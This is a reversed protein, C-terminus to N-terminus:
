SSSGQFTIQVVLLGDFKHQKLLVDLGFSSASIICVICERLESSGIFVIARDPEGGSHHLM